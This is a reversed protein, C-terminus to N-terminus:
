CKLEDGRKVSMENKARFELNRSAVWRFFLSSITIDILWYLNWHEAENDKKMLDHFSTIMSAKKPCLRKSIRKEWLVPQRIPMANVCRRVTCRPKGVLADCGVGEKRVDVDPQRFSRSLRSRCRQQKYVDTTSIEGMIQRHHCHCQCHQEKGFSSRTCLGNSISFFHMQRQHCSDSTLSRRRSYTVGWNMWPEMFIERETYHVCTNWPRILSTRQYKLMPVQQVM